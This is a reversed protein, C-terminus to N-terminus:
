EGAHTTAFSQVLITCTSLSWRSLTGARRTATHLERRASSSPWRAFAVRSSVTGREWELRRCLFKYAITKRKPTVVTTPSPDQKGSHQSNQRNSCRYSCRRIPSSNRHSSAIISPPTPFSPLTTSTPAGEQSRRGAGGTPQAPQTRKTRPRAHGHPRPAKSPCFGVLRRLLARSRRQTLLSASSPQLLSLFPLCDSAPLALVFAYLQPVCITPAPPCGPCIPLPPRRATSDDAPTSGHNSLM